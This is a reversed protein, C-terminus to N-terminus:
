EEDSPDIYYIGRLKRVHELKPKEIAWEQKRKESRSKWNKDMRWAMQSRSTIDNPNKDTEWWVVYIRRSSNREIIHIEHFFVQGRIQCIEIETSM